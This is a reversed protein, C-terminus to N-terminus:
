NLKVIISYFISVGPQKEAIKKLMWNRKWYRSTWTRIRIWKGKVNMNLSKKNRRFIGGSFFNTFEYCIKRQNFKDHNNKSHWLLKSHPKPNKEKKEAKAGKHFQLLLLLLLVYSFYISILLLSSSHISSKRTSFKLVHTSNKKKKREMCYFFM